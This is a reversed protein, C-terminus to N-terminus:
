KGGVQQGNKWMVKAYAAPIHVWHCKMCSETGIQRSWEGVRTMDPSETKLAAGLAAIKAQISDDIYYKRETDHCAECTEKLAQFRKDFSEFHRLANDTQGQGLEVGIGVFSMNLHVMLQAYSLDKGTVPDKVAIGSADPWHYKQQVKPMNVFHCDNCATVVAGFAAMVTGQDGTELSARLDELPKLSYAAEWEPVMRSVKLYQAQFNEFYARAQEFNGRETEIVIGTLPGDLGFMEIQYLPAPATPPYLNDLSNPPPGSLISLDATEEQLRSAEETRAAGGMILLLIGISVMISKM